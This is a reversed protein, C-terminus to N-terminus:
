QTAGTRAAKKAEVRAKVEARKADAKAKAEARKALAAAKIEAQRAEQATKAVARAAKICANKTTEASKLQTKADTKTLTGATVQERLSKVTTQYTTNCAKISTSLTSAITDEAFAPTAFSLLMAAGIGLGILKSKM